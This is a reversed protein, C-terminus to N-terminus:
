DAAFFAEVESAPMPRAILFGQLFDCGAEALLRRQAETEIGEAVVQCGIDQAMRVAGRCIAEARPSRGIEEVLSRDIKLLDIPLRYLQALNSYGTGFDDMAILFGRGRLLDLVELLEPTTKLMAQETIELIISGPPAAIERLLALCAEPQEVFRAVVAPSLNVAVQFGPAITARWRAVQAAAARLVWFTLPVIAGSQEALPIFMSPPVKGHRASTWRLLAEAKPAPGGAAAMIPQFALSMEGLEAARHLEAAIEMRSRSDLEMTTSFVGPAALNLQFAAARALEARRMLTALDEGHDPRFAIGMSAGGLAVDQGFFVPERLRALLRAAHLAFAERSSSSIDVVAAFELRGTRAIPTDTGLYTRLLEVLREVFARQHALDMHAISWASTDMKAVVLAHRARGPPAAALMAAVVAEFGAPTSLGTLADVDRAQSLDSELGRVVETVERGLRQFDRAMRWWVRALLQQIILVLVSVVGLRLLLPPSYAPDFAMVLTVSLAILGAGVAGAERPTLVAHCLLLAVPSWLAAMFGNIGIALLMAGCFLGVLIRLKADTLHRTRAIWVSVLLLLASLAVTVMTRPMRDTTTAIAHIGVAMAFFSVSFSVVAIERRGIQAQLVLTAEITALWGRLRESTTKQAPGSVYDELEPGGGGSPQATM